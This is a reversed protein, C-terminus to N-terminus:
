ADRPNVKSHPRWIFANRAPKVPAISIGKKKRELQAHMEYAFNDLIEPDVPDGNLYLTLSHLGEREAAHYFQAESIKNPMCELPGVSVVGEIHGNRWEHIPGGITLVAEGSLQERLYPKAAALSDQVTTRRPWGMINAAAYYLQHQISAQIYSTVFEPVNTKIKDQYDTYELWENFPAFRCRIGRKELKDIVFNNSFPDCRVYIEGVVLVEPLEREESIEKFAKMARKLLDTMGFNHASGVQGMVAAASLNGRPAKECATALEAMYYDWIEQAAGPRTEVPRSYYLGELLLDSTTLSAYILAAFGDPVTEFYDEDVPAWLTVRERWGLRELVIRDLINYSGFRCPGNATPMFFSFTEEPNKENELRQLLSGLTIVMPFCEKGSTYRRGLALAEQDPLPLSEARIGIGRMCAALAEAGAGMRPILVIANREVIEPVSDTRSQLAVFDRTNNKQSDALKKDEHICYLFAEIRTKTGADGSHGDTEIIAFPKGEM